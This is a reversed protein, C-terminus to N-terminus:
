FFDIFNSRVDRVISLQARVMGVHLMYGADLTNDKFGVSQLDTANGVVLSVQHHLAVSPWASLANGAAVYEATLDVGLVRCGHGKSCVRAPGGLGCGVDLVVSDPQISLQDFLSVAAPAGGIHFEDM